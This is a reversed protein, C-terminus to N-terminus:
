DRWRPNKSVAAVTEAIMETFCVSEVITPYHARGPVAEESDDLLRCNQLRLWRLTNEHRQIFDVIVSRHVTLTSLHLRRLKTLTPVKWLNDVRNGREETGFHLEEVNVAGVMFDTFDGSFEFQTSSCNIHLERVNLLAKYWHRWNLRSQIKWNPLKREFEFFLSLSQLNVNYSYFADLIIALNDDLAKIFKDPRM